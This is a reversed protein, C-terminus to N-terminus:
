VARHRVKRAYATFVRDRLDELGKGTMERVNEGAGVVRAYASSEQLLANITEAVNLQKVLAPVRHTVIATATDHAAASTGLAGREVTLTRQAYITAGSHTALSSGDWARKVVLLNGAIDVVLMRETDLLIMEGIAFAAGNTVSVGAAAASATLDAQLTQGTTLWSKETVIMRESDVRLISGVGVAASNTVDVATESADLVEALAGGPAEDLRCGCFVGEIAINRQWGTTGGFAVSRDIDLDIRTYPPGENVPELFVSALDVADGGTTLSTVSAVEDADLWLRWGTASNENPWDKYRTATVPYFKRRLEGEISLAGAEILRDIVPDIRATFALDPVRKVDERTCYWPQIGM